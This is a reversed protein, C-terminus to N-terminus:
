IVKVRVRAWANNVYGKPNWLQAEDEPQVVASSDWARATIVAEGPPLDVGIRWLRWSWPTVQEGLEAQRWSRGGDTSVDVRSIERDDGALAYGTVETRGVGLTCGDEPTSIDANLAIPGLSLGAGPAPEAEPPLLRYATRQFFNASPERTVTVQRLWKVSRAGIYGPVVVRLPAGHVAPLPEGNMAWALLVEDRMAKAIPISGGFEQPVDPVQSVDPAGFAVHEADDEVGAATLVDALCVGTWRANGTAGPGWPHEGPIDRVNMLGARRNGACQLAATVEHMEFRQWLDALSFTRTREVLGDVYLRWTEADGDPVPGHNRVYFTSADTNTTQTVAPRPPEANFPEWEHVIMDARKGWRM